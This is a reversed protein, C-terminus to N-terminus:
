LMGGKFVSTLNALEQLVPAAHSDLARSFGWFTVATCFVVICAVLWPPVYTYIKHGKQAPVVKKSLDQAPEGRLLRVQRYIKDRLSEIAIPGRDLVRYKGEFGLSLLLYMLELLYLNRAPQQMCRDLIQFFKEGGWTENHFTSLLALRSWQGSEGLQSTSVAEDVATCVIYRAALVQSQEIDSALAQNEFARIEAELKTRLNEIDMSDVYSNDTDPRSAGHSVLLPGRALRTERRLRVITLLLPAAANVLPNLGPTYAELSTQQAIYYSSRKPSTTGSDTVPKIAAPLDKGTETTNNMGLFVTKDMEERAM